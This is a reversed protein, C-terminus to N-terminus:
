DMAFFITNQVGGIPWGECVEQCGECLEQCGKCLEQCGECVEKAM